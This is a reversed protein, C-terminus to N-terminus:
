FGLHSWLGSFLVFCFLVFCVFVRGWFLLFIFPYYGFHKWVFLAYRILTQFAYEWFFTVLLYSKFCSAWFLCCVTLQALSTQTGALERSSDVWPSLPKLNPCLSSISTGAGTLTIAGTHLPENWLQLCVFVVRVECPILSVRNQFWILSVMAWSCQHLNVVINCELSLYWNWPDEYNYFLSIWLHLCKEFVPIPIDALHVVAFCPHRLTKSTHDSVM